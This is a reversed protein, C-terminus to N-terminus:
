PQLKLAAIFIAKAWSPVETVPCTAVVAGDLVHLVLRPQPAIGREPDGEASNDYVHLEALSPLLRVLNERSTVYRERIKTEPIDHGGKAVRERVRRVHLDVGELGVYWMRVALGARAAEELMRTITTGGLTTEFNFHVGDDIARRLLRVGENWAAANAQALSVGPSADLIRKTAEDPDFYAIGEAELAAGGVSSKGAGNIGALVRISARPQKPPNM